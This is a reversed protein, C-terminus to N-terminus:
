HFQYDPPTRERQNGWGICWKTDMVQYLLSTGLNLQTYSDTENLNAFILRLASFGDGYSSNISQYDCVHNIDM